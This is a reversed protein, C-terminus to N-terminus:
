EMKFVKDTTGDSYSYILLVNTKYETERGMLDTIKVLTRKKGPTIQGISAVSFCENPSSSICIDDLLYYAMNALLPNLIQGWTNSDDFFNGLVVYDYPQTPTFTFNVNVWNLTDTYLTDIYIDPDNLPLITTPASGVYFKMGLGNSASNAYISPELALSINWSVYYIQGIIMPSTLTRGIYERQNMAAKTGIGVYGNGSVPYQFGAYNNPVSFEPVTSCSNFYDPTIGHNVWGTAFNIQGQSVPCTFFDEFSSNSILNQASSQLVILLAIINLVEKM